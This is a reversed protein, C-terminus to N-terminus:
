YLFKRLKKRLQPFQGIKPENKLFIFMKTSFKRSKNKFKERCKPRDLVVKVNRSNLWGITLVVKLLLTVNQTCYTANQGFCKTRTINHGLSMKDWSVKDQSMKNTVNKGHLM